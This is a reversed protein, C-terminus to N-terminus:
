KTKKLAGPKVAGSESENGSPDSASHAKNAETKPKKLGDVAAAAKEGKDLKGDKNVDYKELRRTQADARGRQVDAKWAAKEADNLAGDRDVDYKRVIAAPLSKPTETSDQAFVSPVSVIIALPLIGGRSALRTIIKM